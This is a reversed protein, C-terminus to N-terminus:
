KDPKEEELNPCDKINLVPPRFPYLDEYSEIEADSVPKAPILGTCDTTSCTSCMDFINEDIEENTLEKKKEM